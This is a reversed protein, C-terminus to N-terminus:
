TFLHPSAGLSHGVIMVQNFGSERLATKVAALVNKATKAHAEAFRTHVEIKRDMGPFLGGNLRDLFFDADTLSPM